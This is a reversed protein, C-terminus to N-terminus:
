GLPKWSLTRHLLTHQEALFDTNFHNDVEVLKLKGYIVLTIIVTNEPKFFLNFFM